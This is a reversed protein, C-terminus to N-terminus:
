KKKLLKGLKSLIRSLENVFIDTPFKLIIKTVAISLFM